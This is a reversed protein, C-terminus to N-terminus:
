SWTSGWTFLLFWMYIYICFFIIILLWFLWFSLFFFSVSVSALFSFFPKGSQLWLLFYFTTPIEFSSSPYTASISTSQLLVRPNLFPGFLFSLAYSSFHCSFFIFFTPWWKFWPSLYHTDILSTCWKLIWIPSLFFFGLLSSKIDKCGLLTTVTFVFFFLSFHGLWFLPREPCPSVFPWTLISAASTSKERVWGDM